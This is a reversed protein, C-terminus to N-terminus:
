SLEPSFPLIIRDSNGIRLFSTERRIYGQFYLLDGPLFLIFGIFGLHLFLENIRFRRLHCSGAEKVNGQLVTFAIFQMRLATDPDQDLCLIRQLLILLDLDAM